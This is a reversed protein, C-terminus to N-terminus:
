ISKKKFQFAKILHPKHNDKIWHFIKNKLVKKEKNHVKLFKKKM